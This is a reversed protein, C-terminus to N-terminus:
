GSKVQTLWCIDRRCGDRLNRGCGDKRVRREWLWRKAGTEGAMLACGFDVRKKEHIAYRVWAIERHVWVTKKEHVAYRVWVTERHAVSLIGCENTERESNTEGDRSSFYGTAKM